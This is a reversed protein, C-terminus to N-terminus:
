KDTTLFSFNSAGPSANGLLAGNSLASEACIAHSQQFGVGFAATSSLPFSFTSM